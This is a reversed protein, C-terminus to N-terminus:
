VYNGIERRQAKKDKLEIISKILSTVPSGGQDPNNHTGHYDGTAQTPKPATDPTSKPKACEDQQIIEM